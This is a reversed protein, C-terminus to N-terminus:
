IAPTKVAATPCSFGEAPNASELHALGYRPQATRCVCERASARPGALHAIARDAQTRPRDRRPRAPNAATPTSSGSPAALALAAVPCRACGAAPPTAGPP